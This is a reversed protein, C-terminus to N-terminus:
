GVAAEPEQSARRDNQLGLLLAWGDTEAFTGPGARSWWLRENELKFAPISPPRRHLREVLSDRDERM